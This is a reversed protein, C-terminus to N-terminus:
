KGFVLTKNSTGQKIKSSWTLLTLIWMMLVAFYSVSIGLSNEFM